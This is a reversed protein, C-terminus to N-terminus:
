ELRFASHEGPALLAVFMLTTSNTQLQLTDLWGLAHTSCLSTLGGPAM